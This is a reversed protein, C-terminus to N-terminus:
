GNVPDNRVRRRESRNSKWMEAALPLENLEARAERWSPYHKNLLSVFNESHTPEIIHLMEHVIVYPPIAKHLLTKHWEHMVDARKAATSGPRVALTIRRHSLAVFPKLDKTVVSLLYRRGWVYHSEREVLRRPTERAQALMKARQDRIWRRRSRGTAKASAEIASIGTAL